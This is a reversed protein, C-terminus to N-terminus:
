AKSTTLVLVSGGSVDTVNITDLTENSGAVFSCSIGSTVTAGQIAVSGATVIITISNENGVSSWPLGPTIANPVVIGTSYDTNQDILDQILADTSASSGGGAAIGAAIWDNIDSLAQTLGAANPTWGAQNMVNQIDFILPKTDDILSITIRLLDTQRTSNKRQNTVSDRIGFGIQQTSEVCKIHAVPYYNWQATGGSTYERYRISVGSLEIDFQQGPLAAM